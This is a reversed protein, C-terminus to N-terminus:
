RGRVGVDAAAVAREVEAPGARHVKALVHGHDHPCVADVVDGTFIPEGGVIVPIEITEALMSDITTLLEAREPTGPAYTLVPENIPTPLPM